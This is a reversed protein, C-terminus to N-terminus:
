PAEEPIPPILEDPVDNPLFGIPRFFGSYEPFWRDGIATWGDADIFLSKGSAELESRYSDVFAEELILVNIVYGDKVVCGRVTDM